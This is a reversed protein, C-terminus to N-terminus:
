ALNRAIDAFGGFAGGHDGGVDGVDVAARALGAGGGRLHEGRRLLKGALAIVELEFDVFEERRYASRLPAVAFRTDDSVARVGGWRADARDIPRAQSAAPPPSGPAAGNRRAFVVATPLGARKAVVGHM